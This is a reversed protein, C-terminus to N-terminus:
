LPDDGYSRPQCVERQLKRWAKRMRRPIKCGAWIGAPVEGHNSIGANIFSQIFPRVYEKAQRELRAMTEGDYILALFRLAEREAAYERHWGPLSTWVTTHRLAHHALEHAIIRALGPGTEVTTITIFRRGGEAWAQGESTGVQMPVIFLDIGHARVTAKMLAPGDPASM